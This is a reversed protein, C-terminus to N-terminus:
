LGRLDWVGGPQQVVEFWHDGLVEISVQGGGLLPHRVLVDGPTEAAVVGVKAARGPVGLLRPKRRDGPGRQLDIEEGLVVQGAIVPLDPAREPAVARPPGPYVPPGGLLAPM